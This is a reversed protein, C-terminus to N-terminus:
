RRKKPQHVSRGECAGAAEMMAECLTPHPHISLAIDSV